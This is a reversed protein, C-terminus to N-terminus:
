RISNVAGAGLQGNGKVKVFKYKYVKEYVAVLKKGKQIMATCRAAAASAQGANLRARFRSPRGTTAMAAAVPAPISSSRVAM